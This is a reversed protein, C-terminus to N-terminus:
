EIVQLKVGSILSSDYDAWGYVVVVTDGKQLEMFAAASEVVTKILAPAGNFEKVDFFFPVVGWYLSLKYFDKKSYAASLININFRFNSLRRSSKGTETFNIIAKSKSDAAMVCTGHAMSDEPSLEKVDSTIANYPYVSGSEASLAIKHMTKVSEVPYKGAATEGSLMIASTGDFVANAVDSIEARTPRPNEIMSELMETATVTIKGRAKAKGILEKQIIPLHDFPVEVGLDGRAVMLGLCNDLIEIVNDIGSQNEIKAIIDISEGGNADLFERVDIVDQACSVFSCAIYEFDNKIAFLLDAKDKDSLYEQLLHKGPFNLSKNNSLIGGIIVKCYINPNEIKTVQLVILGDNALIQDGVDLEECLNHYTVSVQTEDGDVDYVTLIFEQNHTLNVKGNKFQKVRFEPGKTDLLLAVPEGSKERVAKIKNVTEQHSAHDGHSFNFRAVNMGADILESIKEESNCAPGLTAIIKTKRIKSM